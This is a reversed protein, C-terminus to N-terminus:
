EILAKHRLLSATFQDLHADDINKLGIDIVYAADGTGAPEFALDRISSV